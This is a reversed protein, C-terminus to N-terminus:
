KEIKKSLALVWKLDSEGEMHFNLVTFEKPVLWSFCVPLSPLTEVGPTFGVIRHKSEQSRSRVSLISSFTWALQTCPHCTMKGPRTWDRCCLRSLLLAESCQYLMRQLCHKSNSSKWGKDKQLHTVHPTNKRLSLQTYVLHFTIMTSKLWSTFSGFVHFRTSSCCRPQEGSSHWLYWLTM